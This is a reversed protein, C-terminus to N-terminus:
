FSFGYSVHFTRPVGLAFASAGASVSINRISCEFGPSGVQLLHLGTHRISMASFCISTRAIEISFLQWRNGSPRTM